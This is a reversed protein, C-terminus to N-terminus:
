QWSLATKDTHDFEISVGDTTRLVPVARSNVMVTRPGAFRWRLIVHAPAGTITLAGPQEGPGGMAITRGEFDQIAGLKAGPKAGPYVEYVRRSDMAKVNKDAYESAPVLTMVDEPIKPLIAGSRVYLPLRDLPADAAITQRGSILKGSWYDVWDGEPLYVARQTVPGLVPAVLLDPGFYYENEAARADPDDQHMLALSRMMPLGSRASEQAAGYRYPFLSMHLLSYRRFIRLAEDGYDWPGFNYSSMVEMGPSLASYETWRAFLVPDPDRRATKNYGGLDSMWLSIGSM